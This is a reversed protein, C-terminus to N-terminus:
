STANAATGRSVPPSCPTSTTPAALLQARLAATFATFATTDFAAEAARLTLRLTGDIPRASLFLDTGLPPPALETDSEDWALSLPGDAPPQSAPFHLFTFFFQAGAPVGNPLRPMDAHRTRAAAAADAVRRLDAVFGAPQGVAHADRADADAATTAAPRVAVASALPGFVRNVDPLGHDRGSVALGLLLDRRGTLAALTRYYATLVPAYLTTGADTALRRLASVQGADLTLTATRFLPTGNAGTADAPATATTQGARPRLM